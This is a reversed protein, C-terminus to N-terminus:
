ELDTIQLLVEYYYGSGLDVDTMVSGTVVV